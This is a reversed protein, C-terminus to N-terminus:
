IDGFLKSSAILFVNPDFTTKKIIKLYEDETLLYQENDQSYNKAEVWSQQQMDFRKIVRCPNGVVVSLPPINRNIVSGAGIISGYGIKINKLVTVNAGLWCNSGIEIVGKDTTGATIYPLFPSDFIHGSGLFSCNIGTLCYDGIKILNGSTFFNRKGVFCYDGIVISINDVERHNVNFWTDESIISNEGIRIHKWGVVQTSPDIYSNNGINQKQLYNINQQQLLTRYLKKLPTPIKKKFLNIFSNTAPTM